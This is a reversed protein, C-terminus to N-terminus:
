TRRIREALTKVLQTRFVSNEFDALIPEWEWEELGAERLTQVVRDLKMERIRVGSLTFNGNPNQQLGEIELILEQPSTFKEFDPEVTKTAYVQKTAM